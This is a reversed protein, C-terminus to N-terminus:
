EFVLPRGLWCTLGISKLVEACCAGLLGWDLGVCDGFWRGRLHWFWEACGGAEAELKLKLKWSGTEAELKLKWSGAEPKQSGWSQGPCGGFLGYIVAFCKGPPPEGLDWQKPSEIM